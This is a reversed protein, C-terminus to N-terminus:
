RGTGNRQMKSRKPRGSDRNTGKLLREHASLVFREKRSLERPASIDSITMDKVPLRNANVPLDADEDNVIGAGAKAQKKEEKRASRTAAIDEETTGKSPGAASEEAVKEGEEEEGEEEEEEEEEGEESEEESEEEERRSRIIVIPGCSACLRKRCLSRSVM